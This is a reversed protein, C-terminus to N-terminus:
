ISPSLLQFLISSVCVHEGSGCVVGVCWEWVGSGCVVGVCVQTIEVRDNSTGFRGGEELIYSTGRSDVGIM